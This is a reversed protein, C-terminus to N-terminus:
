RARVENLFAAPDLVKMPQTLQRFRKCILSHGTALSLLDKDRSVLYDAKAAIALDIYLEDQKARPYDLVHRVRRILTSKFTLRQLFADTHLDTLNPNRIRITPYALV